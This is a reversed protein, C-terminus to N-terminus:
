AAAATTHFLCVEKFFFLLPSSCSAAMKMRKKMVNAIKADMSDLEKDTMPVVTLYYRLKSHVVSQIVYKYETPTLSKNRLITLIKEFEDNLKRKGVKWNLTPSLWAGLYRLPKHPSTVASHQTRISGDPLRVTIPASKYHRDKTNAYTYHTKTPSFNVGFYGFYTTAIKMRAIYGSHTSSFITTDDAFALIRLHITTVGNSIVYPDPSEDMQKMLPDLFLNWKLPALVSGQGLGCNMTWEAGAGHATLVRGKRDVDMNMLMQILDPPFGHYRYIAHMAWPPVADYAQTCDNNSIHIEKKHQCSDEMVLMLTAIADVVTRLSNFAHQAPHLKPNMVSSIREALITEVLKYSIEFLSIPRVDLKKTPHMVSGVGPVKETCWVYFRKTYSPTDKKAMCSNVFPLIFNEQAESSAHLLMEATLGSPGASKNKGLKNLAWRLESMNVERTAGLLDPNVYNNVLNHFLKRFKQPQKLWTATSPATFFPPIPIRQKYFTTSIRDTAMTRTIDPDSSVAGTTPDITSQVGIFTSWKSLASCLFGGLSTFFLKSRKAVFLRRTRAARKRGKSNIAHRSTDKLKNLSDISMDCKNFIKRRRISHPIDKNTRVYYIACSIARADNYLRLVDKTKKSPTSRPCLFLKRAVRICVSIFTEHNEEPTGDLETAELAEDLATAYEEKRKVDFKIKDRDQKPIIVPAGMQIYASLARHDTGLLQVNLDSTQAAMIDHAAHTSYM